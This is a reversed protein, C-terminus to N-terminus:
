RAPGKYIARIVFRSVFWDARLHGGAYPVHWGAEDGHIGRMDGGRVDLMTDWVELIRLIM